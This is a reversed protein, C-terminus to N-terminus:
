RGAKLTAFLKMNNAKVFSIVKCELLTLTVNQWKIPLMLCKAYFSKPKAYSLCKKLHGKSLMQEVKEQKEYYSLTCKANTLNEVCGIFRDIYRRCIMEKSRADFVGWYQYLEVM